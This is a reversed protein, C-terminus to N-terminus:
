DQEPETHKPNPLAYTDVEIVEGEIIPPLADVIVHEVKTIQVSVGLDVAQTAKGDLRDGVEKAAVMDGGLARSVVKRAMLTLARIKKAKDADDAVRLEHCARRLAETWERNGLSGKPRAM